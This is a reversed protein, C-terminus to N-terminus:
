RKFIPDVLETVKSLDSIGGITIDSPVKKFWTMQRKAYQRTAALIKEELQLCDLKGQILAIMQKYGISQMPKCDPDAGSSLLERVERELGARVM